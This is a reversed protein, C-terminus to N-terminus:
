VMSKFGFTQEIKKGFNSMLGECVRMGCLIIVWSVYIWTMLFLLISIQGYISKYTENYFIYYVFGWKTILWVITTGLSSCVLALLNLPKNASIKFLLLFMSWTIVYPLWDFLLSLDAVGKLTKQVESSFYVSLALSIPFLTIMTWYVVLSDLFNKPKSNFMKAAVYEFNRFFLISTILVSVIGMVGLKTSNELFTDLYQSLMDTHTPLMNSLITEKLDQVQAHFQPINLLISFFILLLPILAFISYFSLSAAYILQQDFFNYITHFEIRIKRYLTGIKKFHTALMAEGLNKQPSITAPKPQIRQQTNPPPNPFLM